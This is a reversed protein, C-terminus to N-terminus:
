ESKKEERILQALEQEVRRQRVWVSVVFALVALWIASYALVVFLPASVQEKAPPKWPQFGGKALPQQQKTAPPPLKVPRATGLDPPPLKVPKATGLDPHGLQKGAGADPTALAPPAVLLLLGLLAAARAM